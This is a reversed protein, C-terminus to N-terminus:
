GALAPRTLEGRLDERLFRRVATADLGRSLLYVLKTLAAEPTMDYGSVVGADRLASGTAYGDMDVTGALCQTCNVIVVGRACAESLAATLAADDPANGAGYTHLVAGRLPPALLLRVTEPALGPFVRIDAVQPTGVERFRLPGSPPPLHHARDLDITVGATGLLPANPSAFAELGVSSVKTTRNGRLLRSGFFIMVEPIVPGAAILLSTILNERGDSRIECLPIQAGTFVVPKALNEFMYSLASATYAMTDTGHLVLFGDFDDYCDAIGRGIRVWDAPGMNSSDLLPAFEEVVVTPMEDRQFEPMAELQAALFGPAPEYGRATRRMGITGGTNAVYIRKKVAM